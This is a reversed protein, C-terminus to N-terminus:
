LFSGVRDYGELGAREADTISEHNDKEVLEHM